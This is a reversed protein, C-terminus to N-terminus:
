RSCCSVCLHKRRGRPHPRASPNRWEGSRGHDPTRREEGPLLRESSRCSRGGHRGGAGAFKGNWPAAHIARPAPALAGTWHRFFHRIDFSHRLEFARIIVTSELADWESNPNLIEKTMLIEDNTM